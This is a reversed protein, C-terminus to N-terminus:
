RSLQRKNEILMERRANGDMVFPLAIATSGIFAAAFAAAFKLRKFDRGKEPLTAGRLPTPHPLMVRNQADLVGGTPYHTLKFILQTSPRPFM